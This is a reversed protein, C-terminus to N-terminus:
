AADSVFTVKWAYYGSWLSLCVTYVRDGQLLSCLNREFAVLCAGLRAKVGQQGEGWKSPRPIWWPMYVRPHLAIYIYLHEQMPSDESRNSITTAASSPCWHRDGPVDKPPPGLNKGAQPDSWGPPLWIETHEENRSLRNGSQVFHARSIENEQGWIM